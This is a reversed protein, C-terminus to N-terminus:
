HQPLVSYPTKNHTFDTLSPESLLCFSVLSPLPHHSRAPALSCDLSFSCCSFPVSAHDLAQLVVTFTVPLTVTIIYSYMNSFSAAVSLAHVAPLSSSPVDSSQHSSHAPHEQTFILCRFSLKLFVVKSAQLIRIKFLLSVLFCSNCYVPGWIILIQFCEQSFIDSISPKVCKISYIFKNSDGYNDM